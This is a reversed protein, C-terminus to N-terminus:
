NFVVCINRRGTQWTAAGPANDVTASQMKNLKSLEHLNATTITLFSLYRLRFASHWATSSSIKPDWFNLNPWTVRVMCAGKVTSKDDTSQSKIYGVQTCFKVVRAEATRTTHNTVRFKGVTWMIWRVQGRGKWLHKTMRHSPSSVILRAVVNLIQIEM